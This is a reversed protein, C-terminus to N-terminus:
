GGDMADILRTIAERLTELESRSLYVSAIMQRPKGGGNYNIPSHSRIQLSATEPSSRYVGIAHPNPFARGSVDLCQVAHAPKDICTWHNTMNM